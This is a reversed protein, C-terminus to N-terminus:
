IKPLKVSYEDTEERLVTSYNLRGRLKRMIGGRFKFPTRVTCRNVENYEKM